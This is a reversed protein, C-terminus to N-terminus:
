GCPPKWPREFFLSALREQKTDLTNHGTFFLPFWSPPSTFDQCGSHLPAPSFTCLCVPISSYKLCIVVNGELLDLGAQAEGPIGGLRGDSVFSLKVFM